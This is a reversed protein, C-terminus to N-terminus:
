DILMNTFYPKHLCFLLSVSDFKNFLGTLCDPCSNLLCKCQDCRLVSLEQISEGRSTFPLSLRSDAAGSSPSGPVALGLGASGSVAARRGGSKELERFLPDRYRVYVGRLPIPAHLAHYFQNRTSDLEYLHLWHEPPTCALFRRSRGMAKIDQWFATWTQSLVTWASSLLPSPATSPSTSPM